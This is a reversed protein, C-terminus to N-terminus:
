AFAFAPDGAPVEGVARSAAAPKHYIRHLTAEDLADPSGDFVIEGESLGLIRDGFRRGYPVQHLSAVTTLGDEKCIRYILELVRTASVPDLSAVPEDALIITPQQAVARAIGVRQQQGGSLREVRDLARDLLDVRDLCHLALELDARAPPLISGFTSRYGLRGTLVNRLATLRGILQHQQFIMATRRRHRRWDLTGAIVGEGEASVTGEAPQVLGNLVRLLTSKGAGSPGLLVTFQGRVLALDTPKLASVRGDYTVRVRDLQIMADRRKAPRGMLFTLRGARNIV